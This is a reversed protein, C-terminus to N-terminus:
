VVFINILVTILHSLIDVRWFGDLAAADSEGAATHRDDGPKKIIFRVPLGKVKEEALVRM